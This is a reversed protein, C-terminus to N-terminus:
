SAPRTGSSDVDGDQIGHSWPGKLEAAAAGCCPRRPVRKARADWGSPERLGELGRSRMERPAPESPWVDRVRPLPRWGHCFTRATPPELSLVKVLRRKGCAGPRFSSYDVGGHLIAVAGGRPCVALVALTM